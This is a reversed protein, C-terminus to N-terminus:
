NRPAAVLYRGPGPLAAQLMDSGPRSTTLFEVRGDPEARALFLAREFGLDNGFRESAGAPAVFHVAYSMVLTAGTPWPGDAEIDVAYLGPRAHIRIPIPRGAASDSFTFTAFLSNDPPGRRLLVVRRQGPLVTVTTDDAPPGGSELIFVRDITTPDPPPPLTPGAVVTPVM